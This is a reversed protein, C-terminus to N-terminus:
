KRQPTVHQMVYLNSNKGGLQVRENQYMKLAVPFFYYEVKCTKFQQFETAVNEPVSVLTNLDNENDDRQIFRM